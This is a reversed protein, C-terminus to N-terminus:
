FPVYSNADTFLPRCNTPSPQLSALPQKRALHTRPAAKARPPARWVSDTDHANRESRRLKTRKCKSVWPKRRPSREKAAERSSCLNKWRCPDCRDAIFIRVLRCCRSFEQRRTSRKYRTPIGEANAEPCARRSRTLKTKSLESM